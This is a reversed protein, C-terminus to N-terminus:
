NSSQVLIYGSDLNMTKEKSIKIAEIDHEQDLKVFTWFDLVLFSISM